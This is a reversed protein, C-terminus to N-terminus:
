PEVMDDMEEASFLTPAEAELKSIVKAFVIERIFQSRNEIKFRICYEDLAKMEKENLLFVQLHKKKLEEPVRQYRKKLDM